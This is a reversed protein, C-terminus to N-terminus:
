EATLDGFARNYPNAHRNNNGRFDGTHRRLDRASPGYPGQRLRGVWGAFTGRDAATSTM